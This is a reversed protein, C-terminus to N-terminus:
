NWFDNESRQLNEDLLFCDVGSLFNDLAVSKEEDHVTFIM